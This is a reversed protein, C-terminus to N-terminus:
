TRAQSERRQLPQRPDNVAAATDGAGQCAAELNGHGRPSETVALGGLQQGRLCVVGTAATQELLTQLALFAGAHAPQRRPLQGADERPAKAGARGDAHGQPDAKSSM